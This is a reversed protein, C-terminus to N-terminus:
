HSIIAKAVELLGNAIGWLPLMLTIGTLAIVIGLLGIAGSTSM